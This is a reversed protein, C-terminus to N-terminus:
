SNVVNALRKRHAGIMNALIAKRRADATKARLGYPGRSDWDSVDGFRTAYVMFIVAEGKISALKRLTQKQRCAKARGLMGRAHKQIFTAM